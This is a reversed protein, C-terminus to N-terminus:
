ATSDAGLQLVPECCCMWCCIHTPQQNLCGLVSTPGYFCGTCAALLTLGYLLCLRGATVVCDLGKWIWCGKCCSLLGRPEGVYPISAAWARARIDLARMDYVITAVNGWGAVPIPSSMPDLGPVYILLLSLFTTCCMSSCSCMRPSFQLISLCVGSGV